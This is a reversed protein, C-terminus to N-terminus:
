TKILYDDLMRSLGIRYSTMSIEDLLPHDLVRSLDYGHSYQKVRDPTLLKLPGVRLRPPVCSATMAGLRLLSYPVERPDRVELYDAIFEFIDKITTPERNAVVHIDYPLDFRPRRIVALIYRALDEAYILPFAARGDGILVMKGESALRLPEKWVAYNGPGYIFAPRVIAMHGRYESRRRLLIREAEIKSTLYADNPSPVFQLLQDRAVTRTNHDVVSITSVFVAAPINQAIATDFVTVTGGVNV